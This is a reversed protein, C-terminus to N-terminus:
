ITENQVKKNFYLMIYQQIINTIIFVICLSMLSFEWMYHIFGISLVSTIIYAVQSLNILTMNYNAIHKLRVLLSPIYFVFFFSAVLTEALYTRNLMAYLYINTFGIFFLVVLFSLLYRIRVVQNYHRGFNDRNVFYAELTRLISSVFTASKLILSFLGLLEKSVFFQFMFVNVQGQLKKLSTSLYYPLFEKVNKRIYEFAQRFRFVNRLRFYPDDFLAILLIISQPISIALLLSGIDKLMNLYYFVIIILCKFLASLGLVKFYRYLKGQAQMTVDLYNYWSLSIAYFIFLFPNVDLNKIISSVILLIIIYIFSFLSYISYYLEIFKENDQYKFVALNPPVLVFVLGVLAIYVSLISFEGFVEIGITRVIIFNSLFSFFSYALNWTNIKLMKKFFSM